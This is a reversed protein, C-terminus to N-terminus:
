IHIFALLEIQLTVELVAPHELHNAWITELLDKNTTLVDGTIGAKVM